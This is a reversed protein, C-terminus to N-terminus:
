KLLYSKVLVVFEALAVMVKNKSEIIRDKLHKSDWIWM